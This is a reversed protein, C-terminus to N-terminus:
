REKFSTQGSFCTGLRECSFAITSLSVVGAGVAIDPRISPTFGLTSSPRGDHAADVVTRPVDDVTRLMWGNTCYSPSRENSGYVQTKWPGM